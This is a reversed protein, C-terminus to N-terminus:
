LEMQPNRPPQVGAEPGWHLSHHREFSIRTYVGEGVSTLPPRSVIQMLAQVGKTFAVKSDGIETFKSPVAAAERDLMREGHDLASLIRDLTEAIPGSTVDIYVGDPFRQSDDIYEGRMDILRNRAEDRAAKVSFPIRRISDLVRTFERLRVFKCGALFEHRELWDVYVM